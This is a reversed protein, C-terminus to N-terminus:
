TAISLFASSSAMPRLCRRGRDRHIHRVAHRRHDPVAHVRCLRKGQPGGAARAALRPQSGSLRPAQFDPLQRCAPGPRADSGSCLRCHCVTISVGAIVGYLVLLISPPIIPGCTSSSATLAVSFSGDYGEKKMAPILISGISATDATASGSIGGFFMSSVM